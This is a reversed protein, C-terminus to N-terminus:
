LDVLLKEIIEITDILIGNKIFAGSANIHGGGGFTGALANLDYKSGKGRFSMRVNDGDEIILVAVDIKRQYLLQNVIGDTYESKAGIDIFDSNKIYSYVKNEIFTMREYVRTTLHIEEVPRNMAIEHAIKNLDAGKEMLISAIKMTEPSVNDFKFFGTDTVIGTLLAEAIDSDIKVNMANFIGYLMECTSSAKSDIYNLDCYKPNNPHHDINICYVNGFGDVIKSVNDGVREETASDLYIILDPIFGNCDNKVINGTNIFEFSEPVPDDNLISVNKGKEKLTYYMAICSGISDGDPRKHGIVLVNNSDNITKITKKM